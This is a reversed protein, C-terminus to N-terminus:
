RASHQLRDILTSWRKSQSQDLSVAKEYARLASKYDKLAYYATGLNGYISASEADHSYQLAKTYEAIARPYKRLAYYVTGVNNIAECYGPRQKIALEYYSRAHGLDLMQHYAIGIKNLLVPDSQGGLKYAEIAQSYMKQGM